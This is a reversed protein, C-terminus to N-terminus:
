VKDARGEVALREVIAKVDQAADRACILVADPTDVVIMDRLGITAVLRGGAVHVLTDRSGVDMVEGGAGSRRVVEVGGAEEGLAELLAAWNGLDSWGMGVPVVRVRGAVSAPELLSYDISSSPISRYADTLDDGAALADRIPGVISPAHRDLGALVADRRWVFIGANWYARGRALLEIARERTPKEIFHEVPLAGTRQTGDDGASAIVYGYGTEPGLPEIGLTVLGGEAAAAAAEALAARFAGVDRIRHDASLVAMVDDRPRDISAAALAVAAATNRSLPEGVINAAPVAPLQERCVGVFRREAVVYVDRPEILPALRTVTSQLLTQDGLLELFPKPHAARSLPWLRTGGGGALIVAYM